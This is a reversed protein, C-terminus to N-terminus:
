VTVKGPRPCGAGGTRAHIAHVRRPTRRRGAPWGPGGRAPRRRGPRDSATSDTGCTAADADARGARTLLLRHQRDGARDDRDVPYTSDNAFWEWACSRRIIRNTSIVVRSRTAIVAHRDRTPESLLHGPFM